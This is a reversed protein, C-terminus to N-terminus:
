ENRGKAVGDEVAIEGDGEAESIQQNKEYPLSKPNYLAYGKGEWEILHQALYLSAAAETKM